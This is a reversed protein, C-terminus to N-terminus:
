GKEAGSFPSPVSRVIAIFDALLRHSTDRYGIGIRCAPMDDIIRFEVGPRSYFKATSEASISIGKGTAVAQLESEVTAAELVVKPMRGGRHEMALWYDRWVSDGPASIIPEDLIDALVVSTRAALPHGVPLCVVCPERALEVVHIDDIAIPPRIIGCDVKHDRLGATPDSFDFESLALHANPHLREFERVITPIYEVATGILFGVRLENKLSLQLSHAEGAFDEVARQIRRAKDFLRQGEETLEVRRTTRAFLPFGVDQELQIITQSLAPQSVNLRAAARAFSKEIAVTVFARIHRFQINM